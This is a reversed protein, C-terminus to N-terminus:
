KNQEKNQEEQERKLEQEYQEKLKPLQVDLSNRIENLVEKFMMELVSLPLQSENSIRILDNKLDVIVLDIPKQM